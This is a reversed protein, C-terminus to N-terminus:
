ASLVALLRLEELHLPAESRERLLIRGAPDPRAPIINLDRLIRTWSDWHAFAHNELLPLM